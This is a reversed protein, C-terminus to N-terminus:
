VQFNQVSGQVEAVHVSFVVHPSFGRVRRAASSSRLAQTRVARVAAPTGAWGGDTQGDTLAVWGTVAVRRGPPSGQTTGGADDGSSGWLPAPVTPASEGVVIFPSAAACAFVWRRIGLRCTKFVGTADKAKNLSRKCLLSSFYLNKYLLLLLDVFKFRGEFCRGHPLPSDKFTSFAWVPGTYISPVKHPVFGSPTPRLVRM